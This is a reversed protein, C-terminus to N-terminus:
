RKINLKLYKFDFNVKLDSLKWLRNPDGFQRLCIKKGVSGGGGRAVKTRGGSSFRCEHISKMMYKTIM